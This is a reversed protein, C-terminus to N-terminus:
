LGGASNSKRDNQCDDWLEKSKGLHSLLIDLINLTLIRCASKKTYVGTPAM